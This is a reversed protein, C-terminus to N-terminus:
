SATIGLQSKRYVIYVERFGRFSLIAAGIQPGTAFGFGTALEFIAMFLAVHKPFCTSIIAFDGVQIYGGAFGQVIRALFAVVIFGTDSLSTITSLMVGTVVLLFVGLITLAKRGIRRILWEGTLSGFFMVIFKTSYALGIINKSFGRDEAEKPFFAPFITFFAGFIAASTLIGM